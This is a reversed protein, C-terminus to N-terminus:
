LVEQFVGLGATHGGFRGAHGTNLGAPVKQSRAPIHYKKEMEEVVANQWCHCFGSGRFIRRRVKSCGAFYRDFEDGRMEKGNAVISVHARQLPPLGVAVKVSQPDHYKCEKGREDDDLECVTNNSGQDFKDAVLDIFLLFFLVHPEM